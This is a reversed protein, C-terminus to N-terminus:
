EIFQERIKINEDIYESAFKATVQMAVLPDQHAFSITFSELVGRSVKTRIKVNKRIKEFVTEYGEQRIVDQFLNFEEIIKTLNTRSLVQQTISSVREAASGGVISDVYKEPIKQQEVLIVTSSRFLDQKMWALGGGVVTGLVVVSLILWKRRVM